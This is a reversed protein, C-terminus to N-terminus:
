IFLSRFINCSEIRWGQHKRATGGEVVDRELHRFVGKRQLKLLREM